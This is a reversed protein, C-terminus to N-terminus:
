GRPHPNFEILEYVYGTLEKSCQSCILRGDEEIIPIGCGPCFWKGGIGSRFETIPRSEEQIEYAARLASTINRSHEVAFTECRGVGEKIEFKGGCRPCYM